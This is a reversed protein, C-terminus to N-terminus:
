TSGGFAAPLEPPLPMMGLSLAIGAPPYFAFGFTKSILAPPSFCCCNVLTPAFAPAAALEVRTTM